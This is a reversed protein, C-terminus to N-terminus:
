KKLTVTARRKLEQQILSLERGTQGKVSTNEEARRTLYPLVEKVPGYPIYKAVNYSKRALTETIHDSMGYLQSFWIGPHDNEINHKQMLGALYKTSLENHTGNFVNVYDINKICLALAANYDHDTSEKKHHIPSPYNCMTAREREKEMYAGRVLKVGLWFGGEKAQNIKKQLNKLRDHRYMQWTNFIIAKSKNYKKMLSFVTEDIANQYWYDEADVLLRVNANYAAEALQNMRIQFSDYDKQETASLPQDESVKRLVLPNGIATPKFVAFPIGINSAAFSISKLTENMIGDTNTTKSGAEVSYDLISGINREKHHGVVTICTNLTEGGVFLRYLTPKVIWSIPFHLKALGMLINNGTKVMWIRSMLRYMWAAQHLSKNSRHAFTKKTDSFDLASNSATQEITEMNSLPYLQLTIPIHTFSAM